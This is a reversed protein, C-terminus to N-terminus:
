QISFGKKFGHALVCEPKVKLKAEVELQCQELVKALQKQIFKLRKDPASIVRVGGSKKPVNFTTYKIQDPLKYLAFSLAAPKVGLLIAVDKLTTAAKLSALHSM